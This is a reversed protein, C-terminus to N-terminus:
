KLARGRRWADRTSLSWLHDGYILEPERFERWAAHYGEREAQPTATTRPLQQIFQGPSSEERAIWEHRRDNIKRGWAQMDVVKQASSPTSRDFCGIDSALSVAGVIKGRLHERLAEDCLVLDEYALWEPRWKITEAFRRSFLWPRCYSILPEDGWRPDEGGNGWEPYPFQHHPMVAVDLAGYWPSLVIDAGTDAQADLLRTVGAPYFMDDGDLQIVLDHSAAFVADFLAQKAAGPSGARVVRVGDVPVRDLVHLLDDPGADDIVAWVATQYGARQADRSAVLASWLAREYHKPNQHGLVAIITM